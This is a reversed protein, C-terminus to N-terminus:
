DIETPDYFLADYRQIDRSLCSVNFEKTIARALELETAQHLEPNDMVVYRIMIGIEHDQIPRLKKRQKKEVTLM